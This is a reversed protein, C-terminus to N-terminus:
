NLYSEILEEFEYDELSELIYLAENYDEVYGEYIFDELIQEIISNYLELEEKPLKIYTQSYKVNEEQIPNKNRRAEKRAIRNEQRRLIRNIDRLEKRRQADRSAQGTFEKKASTVGVRVSRIVKGLFGKLKEKASQLKRGVEAAGGAVASVAGGAMTKARQAIKGPYEAATQAAQAIRGIRVRQQREATKEARRARDFGGGSGAGATIRATSIQARKERARPGGRTIQFGSSTKAESLYGGLSNLCEDLTIETEYFIDEMIQTLENDSLDDVFSLDEDISACEIENRLEEDYVAFYSEVLDKIVRSSM